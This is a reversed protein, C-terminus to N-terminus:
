IMKYEDDGNSFSGGDVMFAYIQKIQDTVPYDYQALEMVDEAQPVFGLAPSVTINNGVVATIVSQGYRTTFDNSRVKISAGIYRSWKGGENSGFISGQFYEEIVFNTQSSASKIRSSPSILGYRNAGNFGTDVLNLEIEGKRFDKRLNCIEFLKAPKNRDGDSTNALYLENGDLVVIDGIELNFGTEYLVRVGNLAEAGFKYRDLRRQSSLTANSTGNLDERMGESEVIFARNGVPIQTLSTGDTVVYGKLFKNELKDKEFKYIITNSFNKNISRKIKLKSPNTIQNKGITKISATPIPPSFYGLSARAKRPLSYAACPKYIQEELFDKANEITEALLFRYEFNSLFLRQIRLHEDIDVEDCGMKLGRPLTDYQSRFSVVASTDVEEILATGDVVIYSGEDTLVVDTIQRGSFNNAVNSAGSTTVYDDVVVGYEDSVNVGDFYIANSINEGTDIRLFNSIPKNTIFSGGWGSLMIKLALDISNGQLTYRSSVTAGDSHAAATTGYMGRTCGTLTNGSISNFRILEDDVLILSEFSSDYSGDPGLVREILNTTDSLTISSQVSDIAGDLEGEFTEYIVQSKKKDPHSISLTVFGAGSDIDDIIGRFITIYDDPFATNDAFGLMVKARRGLVDAVVVGPTILETIAQDFDILQIQMSSISAGRGKDIDLQQSITTTSGDLSIASLQDELENFGGIVWDNGIELGEDGIRIFDLIRINGYKTDVGDICLVLSPSKSIQQSENLARQTLSFTM